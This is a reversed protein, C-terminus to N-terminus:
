AASRCTQRDHVRPSGARARRTAAPRRPVRM